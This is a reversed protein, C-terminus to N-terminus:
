QNRMGGRDLVNKDTILAPKAERTEAGAIDIDVGQSVDTGAIFHKRAELRRQGRIALDQPLRTHDTKRGVVITHIYADLVRIVVHCNRRAQQDAGVTRM